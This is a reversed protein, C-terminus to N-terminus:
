VSFQRQIVWFAGLSGAAYAPLWQVPQPWRAGLLHLAIYSSKDSEACEGKWDLEVLNTPEKKLMEYNAHSFENIHVNYTNGSRCVASNIPAGSLHTVFMDGSIRYPWATVQYSARHLDGVVGSFDADQSESM